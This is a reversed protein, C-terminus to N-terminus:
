ILVYIFFSWLTIQIGAIIFAILYRIKSRKIIGLPRRWYRIVFFVTFPATLITLPWMIVPLLALGLAINDYLVRHNELGQIKRKEKGTSLCAPCLHQDNFEIDCLSCLFRGCSSCSVVARKNPHYFCGAEDDSLLMEGSAGKSLSNFVAPFVDARLLAGCSPCPSLSQSNLLEAPLPATCKTCRIM